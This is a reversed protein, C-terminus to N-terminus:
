MWRGKHGAVVSLVTDRIPELITRPVFGLTVVRAGSWLHLRAANHMRLFPGAGLQIKQLKILPVYSISHGIFGKRVAIWDKSVYFRTNSWSRYHILAMTGYILAVIAPTNWEFYISPAAAFVSFITGFILTGWLIQIAQTYQWEGEQVGLDDLLEKLKENSLVPVIFGSSQINQGTGHENTQLIELTHRKLIRAVIGQKVHIGQLKHLKFGKSVRKLLGADFQYREPSTYLTYNWFKVIALIVSIGYFFLIASVIVFTFLVIAIIPSQHSAYELLWQVLSSSEVWNFISIRFAESQGVLPGAIAALYILTNHMLGFRILEPLKLRLFANKASASANQDFAAENESSETVTSATDKKQELYLAKIEEALSQKLGPIDIEKEKSGASELGLTWLGFPRFYVVQELNVEQVREFNLTLKKKNLFGTHLVIKKSDFTFQFFWYSLFASALLIALLIFAGYSFLFQRFDQVVLVGAIAPWMNFSIQINKILFYIVSIPSCRHWTSDSM